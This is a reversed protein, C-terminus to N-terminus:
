TNEPLYPQPQALLGDCLMQTLFRAAGDPSITAGDEERCSCDQLCMHMQLGKINGLIMHAVAHAPMPRLEGTQMAAELAPTLMTVMSESQRQFYAARGPDDSFVMRYAEKVLIMFLEQREAFFAIWSEAFTHLAERFSRETTTEPTFADRILQCLDDYIGDFIAFLIDEKGGEFYNYITGKGFEARQAIEDLTANTYGKEAFVTQAAELIDRRRMLRERERRSLKGNASTTITM